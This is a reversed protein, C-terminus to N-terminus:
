ILAWKERPKRGVLAQAEPPAGVLHEKEGDWRLKLGTKYSINGL